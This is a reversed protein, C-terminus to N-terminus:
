NLIAPLLGAILNFRIKREPRRGFDRGSLPDPFAAGFGRLLGAM